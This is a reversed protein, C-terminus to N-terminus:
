VGNKPKPASMINNVMAYPDGMQPMAPSAQRGLVAKGYDQVGPTLSQQQNLRIREKHNLLDIQNQHKQQEIQQTYLYKAEAAAVNAIYPPFQGEDVPVSYDSRPKSYNYIGAGIATAAGLQALPNALGVATAVTEPNQYAGRPIWDAYESPKKDYYAEYEGTARNLIPEQEAQTPRVQQEWGIQPNRGNVEPGYIPGYQKWHNGMQTAAPEETVRPNEVDGTVRDDVVQRPQVRSSAKFHQPITKYGKKSTLEDYALDRATRYQGTFYNVLADGAMKTGERLATNLIQDQVSM